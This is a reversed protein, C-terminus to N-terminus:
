TTVVADGAKLKPALYSQAILNLSETTGRTFILEHEHQAGVFTAIRERAHDYQASARESLEHIGRHVNANDHSYFRTIADIVRQPKQTTAGNDLYALPHGNVEQALAPFQSRIETNM